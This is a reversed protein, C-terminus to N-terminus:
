RPGETTSAQTTSAQPQGPIGGVPVGAFSAVAGAPDGGIVLAEGVLVARAGEAAYGKVDAVGRIGSEAVAVAEDPILPRLRAFASPDVELTKLNRANVGIVRAGTAVARRTEEADHVEVLATMGLRQAQERMAILQIDSLAAVILLILDAGHARAELLQYPEVMFDKRLVPIRVTARVADLDALSGSFRREETLVSIATAGGAAYATALAAPDPIDALAGKSPSARKVEAIVAIGPAARLAAEADLAPPMTAIRAELDALSTRAVRDALDLRVGAIIEDLVTPTAPM